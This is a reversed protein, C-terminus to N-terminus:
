EKITENLVASVLRTAAADFLRRRDAAFGAIRALAVLDSRSRPPDPIECLLDALETDVQRTGDDSAMANAIIRRIREHAPPRAIMTLLAASAQEVTLEQSSSM